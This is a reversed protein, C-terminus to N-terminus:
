LEPLLIFAAIPKHITTSVFSKIRLIKVTLRYNGDITSPCAPVRCAVLSNSARPQLHRNSKGRANRIVFALTPLILYSFTYVIGFFMEIETGLKM